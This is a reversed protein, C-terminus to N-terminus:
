RIDKRETVQIDKRTWCFNGRGTGLKGALLKLSNSKWIKQPVCGVFMLLKKKAGGLAGM